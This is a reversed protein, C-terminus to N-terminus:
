AAVRSRVFGQLRRPAGVEFRVDGSSFVVYESVDTLEFASGDWSRVYVGMGARVPWTMGTVRAALPRVVEGGYGVGTSGTLGADMDHVWITDGVECADHPDAISSRIALHRAVTEHRGQQQAAVNDCETNTDASNSTSVARMVLANGDIGVYPNSSITDSGSASEDSSLVTTTSRWDKWDESDGWDTVPIGVLSSDDASVRKSAIAVPTTSTPFLTNRLAVSLAGGPSITWEYPNTKSTTFMRCAEGLVDRESQAAKVKGAKTPSSNSAITGVTIGNSGGNGVRLVNTRIWSTNSGDYLPRAGVVFSSGWSNGKGDSDGLLGALGFGEWRTRAGSSGDFVGSWVAKGLLDTFGVATAELRVPCVIVRAFAREALDAVEDPTGASLDLRFSGLGM